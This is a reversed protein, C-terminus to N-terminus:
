KLMDTRVYFLLYTNKSVLFTEVPVNKKFPIVIDDDFNIWIGTSENKCYTNYHGSQLGGSHNIVSYLHYKYCKDDAINESSIFQSIDLDKIPFNVITNNKRRDYGFRKLQIVLIRPNAWLRLQKVARVKESCGDCQWMNNEDLVEKKCFYNFCDYINIQPDDDNIYKESPIELPLHLYYDFKHNVKKCGPCTTTSHLFGSFIETIRSYSSGYYKKMERYSELIVTAEPYKDKTEIYKDVYKKKLVPDETSEIMKISKSRIELLEDVDKRNTKFRIDKKEALEEQMKEIICSYAEQADQQEYGYFSSNRTFITKFSLPIITKNEEWMKCLLRIIQFTMTGNLLIDRESDSLESPDYKKSNIKENLDKPLKNETRYIKPANTLLIQKIFDENTFLYHRLLYTHSIVQLASNMYCTNGFNSLGSMGFMNTSRNILDVSSDNQTDNKIIPKSLPDSSNVVVRGRSPYVINKQQDLNSNM